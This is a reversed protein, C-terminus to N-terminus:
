VCGRRTGGAVRGVLDTGAEAPAETERQSPRKPQSSSAPTPVTEAAPQEEAPPQLADLMRKAVKDGPQDEM